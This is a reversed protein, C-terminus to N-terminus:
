SRDENSNDSLQCAQAPIEAATGNKRESALRSRRQQLLEIVSLPIPGGEPGSHENSLYDKYGLLNKALFIAAAINGNNAQQFLTRRVSLRGKARGREIAAAFVPKKRRREITRASVGFFLAMEEDTCQLSSLKELEALDIKVAKRGARPRKGGNM